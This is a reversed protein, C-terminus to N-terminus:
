LSVVRVNFSIWDFRPPEWSTVPALRYDTLEVVVILRGSQVEFIRGRQPMDGHRGEADIRFITRDGWGDQWMLTGVIETPDGHDSEVCEIHLAASEGDVSVQRTFRDGCGSMRFGDDLLVVARSREGAGAVYFSVADCGWRERQSMWADPVPWPPGSEVIVRGHRGPSPPGGPRGVLVGGRLPHFPPVWWGGPVSPWPAEHACAYLTEVGGPGAIRLSYLRSEPIRYTMGPQVFDSGSWRNPFIVDGRGDPAYDIITVHCDRDVRFFVILPDGPHYTGGDGRDVWVDIRPGGPYWGENWGSWGQWGPGPSVFIRGRPPGHHLGGHVHHDHDGPPAGHDGPTTGHEGPTTGDGGSTGDDQDPTVVTGQPHEKRVEAARAAGFALLLLPAALVAVGVLPLLRPVATTGLTRVRAM